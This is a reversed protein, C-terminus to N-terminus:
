AGELISLIDLLMERLVFERYEASGHINDKISCPLSRIAYSIRSNVDMNEMNLAEELKFSRFPFGCVGSFAARIKSDKKVAEANILPYGVRGQRTRKFAAFPLNLYNRDTVLQVLFEGRKLQLTKNFVDNINERRIGNIGAIIVQSDCLLFPLVAERYIIRSCINGGVTIKSRSTHDAVGSAARSLLPFPNEESVRTLTIAGGIILSRSTLKFESCEPIGKIDIVAGTFITNRRAMTIIETGGSYYLPQKGLSDLEMYVEVAEKISYPKYYDFNFSIM